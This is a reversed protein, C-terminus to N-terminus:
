SCPPPSGGSPALVAHRHPPSQHSQSPGHGSPAYLPDGGDRVGHGGNGDVRFSATALLQLRLRHHLPHATGGRGRKRKKTRAFLSYALPAVLLPM